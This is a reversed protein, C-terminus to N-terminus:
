NSFLHLLKMAQQIRLAIVDALALSEASLEAVIPENANVKHQLVRSSKRYLMLLCAPHYKAEKAILDGNAM